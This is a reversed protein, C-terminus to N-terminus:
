DLSKLEKPFHKIDRGFNILPVILTQALSILGAIGAAMGLMEAMSEVLRLVLGNQNQSLIFSLFQANRLPLKFRTTRTICPLTRRFGGWRLIRMWEKIRRFYGIRPLIPISVGRLNM